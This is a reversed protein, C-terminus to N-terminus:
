IPRRQVDYLLAAKANLRMPAGQVNSFSLRFERGVGRLPIETVAYATDNFHAHVLYSGGDALVRVDIDGKGSATLRLLTKDAEKHGFDQVPMSWWAEIPAGDYDPSDDFKVLTGERTLAYLEGRLAQVDALLFGARVMYTGRLLDYEIMTDAYSFAENSRFAFYLTDGCAASVTSDAIAERLLPALAAGHVPRRVTQGDYCCLGGDCLFYVRDAYRVCGTHAPMQYAADVATVRYNGPRDGLLRFLNNQTFILLQNSLAILGTIPDDSVGIDVFGGSVNESAPDARWDDIGRDAGPAKSWYLRSPALPNGAAFLRGFYLEVSSVPVDSLRESSGFATVANTVPDYLLAQGSGHAILLRDASQMRVPLFDIRNAQLATEFTHIQRWERQASHYYYLANETVALYRVGHETPYLFMRLFRTASQIADSAARSFGGATRLDGYRTDMNCADPSQGADLLTESLDMRVGTFAPLVGYTYAM